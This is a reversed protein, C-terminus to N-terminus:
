RPDASEALYKPFVSQFREAKELLWEFYREWEPRDEFEGPLTLKIRCAKRDPLAMWNLTEGLDSEIEDKREFLRQFLGKNDHISLEVGLGGERSSLTLAMVAQSSGISVNTWNQPFAKQLRLKSTRKQAFDKLATWFELQMLKTDTPTQRGDATEKVARAWDNPKCVIDFKPAFPSDGIQWLEIRVLYFELGDDTHANLWDIAQRHEERADKVVWVVVGADYGSAYTIIQGLHRHDTAELQNEIIVKRGTNGEEALIDASFDGVAAEVQTLKLDFGIADGLLSLNDPQALWLTFDNAEHKWAERVNIQKLVGLPM